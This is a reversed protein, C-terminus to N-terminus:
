KKTMTFTGANGNADVDGKLTGDPQVAGKYALHMPGGQYTTDYGFEAKSGDFTGTAQVSGADSVCPGSIKTGDQTFTCTLSFNFADGFSLDVKWPGSLDAASASVPIALAFAAAIFLSRM